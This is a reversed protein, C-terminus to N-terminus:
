GSGARLRDFPEDVLEGSVVIGAASGRDLAPAGAPRAVARHGERRGRDDPRRIGPAPRSDRRRAGASDRSPCAGADSGAAAPSADAGRGAAAAGGAPRERRGAPWRSAGRGAASRRGEGSGRRSRPWPGGREARGEIRAKRDDLMKLIPKYVFLRLVILLFTFSLIQGILVPVNIGLDAIGLLVM